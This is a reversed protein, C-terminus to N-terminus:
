TNFKMLSASCNCETCTSIHHHDLVAQISSTAPIFAAVGRIISTQACSPDYGAQWGEYNIVAIEEKFLFLQM